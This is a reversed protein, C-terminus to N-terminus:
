WAHALFHWVHCVRTCVWLIVLLLPTGGGWVGREKREGNRGRHGYIKGRKENYGKRWRKGKEGEERVKKRTKESKRKGEKMGKMEERGKEM